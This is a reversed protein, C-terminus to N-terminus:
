SLDRNHFNLAQSGTRIGHLPGFCVFESYVQENANFDFERVMFGCVIVDSNTEVLWEILNEKFKVRM